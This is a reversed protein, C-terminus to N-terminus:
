LWFTSCRKTKSLSKIRNNSDSISCISIFRKKSLDHAESGRMSVPIVEEVRERALNTLSSRRSVFRKESMNYAENGRISTSDELRERALTTTSPSLQRLGDDTRTIRTCVPVLCFSNKAQYARAWPHCQLSSNLNQLSSTSINSEELNRPFWFVLIHDFQYFKEISYLATTKTKLLLRGRILVTDDSHENKLRNYSCYALGDDGICVGDLGCITNLVNSVPKCLTSESRSQPEVLQLMLLTICIVLYITSVM